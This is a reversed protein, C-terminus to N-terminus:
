VQTKMVQIWSLMHSAMDGVHVKIIGADSKVANKM